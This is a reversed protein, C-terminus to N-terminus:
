ASKADVAITRDAPFTLTATTGVGEESEFSLEGGHLSMHKQVLTLGLGSGEFERELRADVQYFADTLKPISDEPIGIGEDCVDIRIAGTDNVTAQLLITSGSPSFKVANSLLNLVMQKTLRPDAWLDPLGDAAELKINRDKAAPWGETLRIVTRLM